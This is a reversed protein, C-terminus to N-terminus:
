ENPNSQKKLIHSLYYKEKREMKQSKKESKEHDYGLLHLIGHILVRALEIKFQSKFRRTNKKIENLCIVIEGLRVQRM